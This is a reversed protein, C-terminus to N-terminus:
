TLEGSVRIPYFWGCGDKMCSTIQMLGYGCDRSVLTCAYRDDPDSM